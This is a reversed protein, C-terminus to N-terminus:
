FDLVNEEVSPASVAAQVLTMLKSNEYTNAFSASLGNAVSWYTHHTIKFIYGDLM